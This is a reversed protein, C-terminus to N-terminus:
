KTRWDGQQVAADLGERSARYRTTTTQDPNTTITPPELIRRRVMEKRVVGHDPQMACVSSILAYLEPESYAHEEVLFSGFWLAALAQVADKGPWQRLRPPGAHPPRGRTLFSSLKSKGEILRRALTFTLDRSGHYELEAWLLPRPLAMFGDLLAEDCSPRVPVHALVFGRVEMGDGLYAPERCVVHEDKSEANRGWVVFAPAVRLAEGGATMDCDRTRVRVENLVSAEAATAEWSLSGVSATAELFGDRTILTVRSPLADRGTPLCVHDSSTTRAVLLAGVEDAMTDPLLEVHYHKFAPPPSQATTREWFAILLRLFAADRQPLELSDQQHQMLAGLTSSSPVVAAVVEEGGVIFRM